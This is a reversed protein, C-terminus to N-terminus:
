YVGYWKRVFWEMGLLLIICIALWKWNIWAAYDTFTRSKPKMKQHQEIENEIQNMDIPLHFKGDSQASMQKLLSHDAKLKHYEAPDQRVVFNGKKQHNIGAKQAQATYAYIGAPLRGPNLTYYADQASFQFPLKAGSSDVLMISVQADNIPEYADNYVEARMYVSEGADYSNKVDLRFKSKDDQAALLQVTKQIWEDFTSSNGNKEFDFLRLRWLGEAALISNKYAEQQVVLWIPIQTEINGIRKTALVQANNSVVFNGSLAQLPPGEKFLLQMNESINFGQFGMNVVARASERGSRVGNIQLGLKLNNLGFVSTKEGLILWLPTKKNKLQLFTNGMSTNQTPLGHLIVLNWDANPDFDNAQFMSLEINDDKILSNRIAGLDPHPGESVLAIKKRTNNVEIYQTLSNNKLNQEGELPSLEARIPFIGPEKVEIYISRSFDRQDEDIDIKQEEIKKGDFYVRLIGQQGKLRDAGIQIDVPVRSNTFAIKNSILHRIYWDKRISTDGLGITYFPSKFHSLRNLPNNGRTIIGDSALIVAGIHQGSSILELEKLAQDINTETGSYDGSLGEKLDESFSFSRLKYKAALRELLQDRSQLYASKYYASDKSLHISASQDQLFLIQAQEIETRSSKTLPNFLLFVLLSLCISRVAFLFWKIKEPIESGSRIYLLASIGTGVLVCLLIFWYSYHLILSM